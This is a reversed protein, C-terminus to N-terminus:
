FSWKMDVYVVNSIQSKENGWGTVKVNASDYNIMDGIEIHTRGDLNIRISPRASIVSYDDDVDKTGRVNAFGKRHYTNDGGIGGVQSRGGMFYVLDLRPIVSGIAYSGWLRFLLGLDSDPQNYIFQVADLGVNLEDSVKYAFTESFTSTGSKGFDELKDLYGVIIATLEKKALIRLEAYLASSEQRGAYTTNGDWGAQNKTRFSFGMRFVDKMTYSGSIVYKTDKLEQTVNAFNPLGGNNATTLINNRGSGQQSIIYAGFGLALGDIPTLKLLAGLGEGADDNIWWDATQWASDDVIGGLLSIKNDFFNTYGYIYPLSLYGSNNNDTFTASDSGTTTITKSKDTAALNSQSQLRFRVGANKAENQYSGNLRFRYGHQESDVGFARIYPDNEGVSVVGLGSNFYGDFKLEQAFVAGTLLVM